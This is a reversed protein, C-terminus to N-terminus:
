LVPRRGMRSISACTRFGNWLATFNLYQSSVLSDTKDFLGIYFSGIEEDCRRAKCSELFTESSASCLSLFGDGLAQVSCDLLDLECLSETYMVSDHDVTVELVGVIQEFADRQTFRQLTILQRFVVERSNAKNATKRSIISAQADSAPVYERECGIADHLCDMNQTRPRTVISWENDFTDANWGRGGM